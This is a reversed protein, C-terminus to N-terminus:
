PGLTTKLIRPGKSKGGVRINGYRIQKDVFKLGNDAKFSFRKGRLKSEGCLAKRLDEDVTNV